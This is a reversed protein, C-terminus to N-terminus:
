LINAIQFILFHDPMYFSIQDVVELGEESGEEEMDVM